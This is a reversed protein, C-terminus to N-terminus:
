TASKPLAQRAADAWAGFDLPNVLRGARHLERTAGCVVDAMSLAEHGRAATHAIAALVANRIQGGSLDFLAGLLEPDVDPALRGVPLLRRWLKEREAAQPAPFEVIVDIRRVFAGDLDHRRNTALLVVGDHGELRQLLYGTELNAYRDHADKVDTRKAFLADAEDFFLVAGAADAEDFLRGLNKETEGIWKSVVQALDIRYLDRELQGAMIQAALTKGTGPPGSFLCTLGRAATVGDGVGWATRMQDQVRAWGIALDLERRGPAAVILEDPARPPLHRALAALGAAGTARVARDLAAPTAAGDGLFERARWIRAPGFRYRAALARAQREADVRAGLVRQWILARREQSLPPVAVVHAAGDYETLWDPATDQIWIRPSSSSALWRRADDDPSGERKTIVVVANRWRADRERDIWADDSVGPGSLFFDCGLNAHAAVAGALAHRGSGAPGWLVVLPPHSRAIAEGADAVASRLDESLVLSAAGDRPPCVLRGPDQEALRTWVAPPCRLECLPLAVAGNTDVLHWRRLRGAPGLARGLDLGCLDAVTAVSPHGTGVGGHTRAITTAITADLDPAAVLALARRERQDLDFRTAAADLAEAAADADPDLRELAGAVSPDLRGRATLIVGAAIRAVAAVM